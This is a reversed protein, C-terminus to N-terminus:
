YSFFWLVCKRCAMLPSRLTSITQLLVPPVIFPSIFGGGWKYLLWYNGWWTLHKQITYYCPLESQKWWPLCHAHKRCYPRNNSNNVWKNTTKISRFLMTTSPSFSPPLYSQFQMNLRTSLSDLLRISVCPACCLTYRYKFWTLLNLIEPLPLAIGNCAQGPGSPELFKLSGSKM